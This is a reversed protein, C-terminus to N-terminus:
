TDNILQNLKHKYTYYSCGFIIRQSLVSAIRKYIKEDAKIRHILKAPKVEIFNEKEIYVLGCYDPLEEPKIMNIECVFFFRNPIIIRTIEGGTKYGRKWEDYIYIAEGNLLKQHKHSKNKFDALFDSRSRKIEFEYMYGSSSIAFVDVEDFGAAYFKPLFIPFSREALNKIIIDTIENTTLSKIFREM